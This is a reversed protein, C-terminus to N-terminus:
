QKQSNVGIKHDRWISLPVLFEFVVSFSSFWSNPLQPIQQQLGCHSCFNADGLTNKILKESKAITCPALKVYRIPEMVVRSFLYPKSLLIDPNIKIASLKLWIIILGKIPYKPEFYLRGIIIAMPSIITARDQKMDAPIYVDVGWFFLFWFKSKTGYRIYPRLLEESVVKLLKPSELLVSNLKSVCNHSGVRSCIQASTM